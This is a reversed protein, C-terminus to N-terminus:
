SGNTYTQPIKIFFKLYRGNKITYGKSTSNMLISQILVNTTNEISLENILHFMCILLRWDSNYVQCVYVSIYVMGRDLCFNRPHQEYDLEEVFRHRVM